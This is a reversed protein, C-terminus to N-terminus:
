YGGAPPAVNLGFNVTLTANRGEYSGRSLRPNAPQVDIAYTGELRQEEGTGIGSVSRDPSNPESAVTPTALAVGGVKTIVAAATMREVGSNLVAIHGPVAVSDSVVAANWPTNPTCTITGLTNDGATGPIFGSNSIRGLRDNVDSLTLNGGTFVGYNIVGGTVTCFDSVEFKLGASAVVTQASAPTAALGAVTAIVLGGSGVARQVKSLM